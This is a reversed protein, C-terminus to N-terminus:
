DIYNADCSLERCLISFCCACFCLSLLFPSSWLHPYLRIISLFRFPLFPQRPSSPPNLFHHSLLLSLHFSNSSSLSVSPLPSPTLLTCSSLFHQFTPLSSPLHLPLSPLFFFTHLAFPHFSSLPIVSVRHFSPLHSVFSSGPRHYHAVLAFRLSGRLRFGPEGPLSDYIDAGPSVCSPWVVDCQLVVTGFYGLVCCGCRGGAVIRM